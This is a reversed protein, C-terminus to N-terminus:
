ALAMAIATNLVAPRESLIREAAESKVEIVRTPEMIEVTGGDLLEKLGSFKQLSLAAAGSTYIYKPPNHGLLRVTSIARRCEDMLAPYYRSNMVDEIAAAYPLGIPSIKANEISDAPVEAYEQLLEGQKKGAVPSLEHYVYRGDEIFILQTYSHGTQIIMSACNEPLKLTKYLRALALAEIDATKVKSNESNVISLFDALNDNRMAAFIVRAYGNAEEAIDYDFSYEELEVSMYQEAIFRMDRKLQELSIYPIRVSRAISGMGKVALGVYTQTFGSDLLKGLQGTLESYDIILGDAIADQPTQLSQAHCLILSDGEKMIEAAKLSSAGLDLGIM